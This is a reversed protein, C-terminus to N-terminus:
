QRSSELRVVFIGPEDLAHEGLTAARENTGTVVAHGDDDVTVAWPRIGTAGSGLGGLRQRWGLRGDRELHVALFGSPTRDQECLPLVVAVGARGVDVLPDGCAGASALDRTWLVRGAGDLAHVSVGAHEGSAVAAVVILGDSSAMSAGVRADVLRVRDRPRGADDFTATELVGSPGVGSLRAASGEATLELPRLGVLRTGWRRQGSPDVDVVETDYGADIAPRTVAVWAHADALAIRASGDEGLDEV